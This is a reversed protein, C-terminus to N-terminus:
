NYFWATQLAGRAVHAVQLHLTPHPIPHPALLPARSPPVPRVAALVDPVGGDTWASIKPNTEDALIELGVPEVGCGFLILAANYYFQYLPDTHVKSGLVRMSATYQAESGKATEQAVSM